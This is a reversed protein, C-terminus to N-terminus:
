LQIPFNERWFNLRSSFYNNDMKVTPDTNNLINGIQLFGNNEVYPQWLNSDQLLASTPKGNIAFSTWLDVMLNLVFEDNENIASTTNSSFLFGLEEAHPVGVNKKIDFIDFIKNMNLSYYGFSYFYFPSKMVKAIKDMMASQPYLFGSDSVFDTYNNLLQDKAISHISTNFYYNEISDRFQNVDESNSYYRSTLNITKELFLLIREIPTKEAFFPLTQLLGENVVTGSMFPQDKMKNKVILNKPSDTLFADESNLEDTPVWILSPFNNVLSKKARLLTEVSKNRLCDVVHESDDCSCDIKGVIANILPKYEIKNRFVWPCLASGSQIIYQQFLGNSADSIAHLNVSAGGASEGFLTVRNPDGGFNKINKQVWKLALAQDKLGFNGPAVSDGTTFFGFIGLRYNMSVLLINKDLLYNPGYVSPSSDGFFYGGGHIWVMVPLLENEELNNFDLYPTYVNLYLCDEKGNINNQFDVQACSNGEQHASLIGNWKGAPLPNKFRLNGIPPEAYPIGLFASILRNGKTQFNTGSLIGQDIKVVPEAQLFEFFFFQLIIFKFILQLM